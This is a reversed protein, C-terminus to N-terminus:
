KQRLTKVISIFLDIEYRNKSSARANIDGPENTFAEYYGTETKHVKWQVKKDLLYSAVIENTSGDDPPNNGIPNGAKIEIFGFMTSTSDKPTINYGLQGEKGRAESIDFDGPLQIYYNSEGLRTENVPKGPNNSCASCIFILLFLIRNM